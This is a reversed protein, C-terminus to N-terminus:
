QLYEIGLQTVNGVYSSLHTQVLRKAGEVPILSAMVVEQVLGCTQRVAGVTIIAQVNPLM